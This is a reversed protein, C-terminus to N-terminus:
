GLRRLGGAGCCQPSWRPSQATTARSNMRVHECGSTFLAAFFRSIRLVKPRRTRRVDRSRRAMRRADTASEKRDHRGSRFWSRRGGYEDEFVSAERNLPPTLRKMRKRAAPQNKFGRTYRPVPARWNECRRSLEGDSVNLQILRADADITISDNEEILAIAGGVAAEPSVHGVVMGYTGGSFRGDTILAVSDGLGAGIIASTPALMERMGPGGKPGEYRIVVVDGPKIQGALITELCAEESEFVRAPGTITKSKVGTIKAVAGETALNGRLITLHGQPYVPDGWRRIVDQHGPPVSPVDSLLIRTFSIRDYM